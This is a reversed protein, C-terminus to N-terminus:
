LRLVAEAPQLIVAKPFEPHGALVRFRRDSTVFIDRKAHEHAWFGQADLIQNRWRFYAPSSVNDQSIGKAAAFDNWKFLSTPFLTRYILEERAEAEPSSWLANDWFSMDWRMLPPLLVFDGFGLGTRRRNFDHISSLYSNGQQRESASSAVLAIDAKGALAADRLMLVAIASRRGEDADILCNTDLTFKLV